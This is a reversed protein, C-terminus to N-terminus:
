YYNTPPSLVFPIQSLFARVKRKYNQSVSSIYCRALQLSGLMELGLQGAEVELTAPIVNCAWTVLMKQPAPIWGLGRTTALVKEGWQIVDGAHPVSKFNWSWTSM